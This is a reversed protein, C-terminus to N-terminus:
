RVRRTRGCERASRGSGRLGRRVRPRLLWPRRLVLADDFGVLPGYAGHELRAIGRVAPLFKAEDGGGTETAVASVVLARGPGQMVGDVCVSVFVSITGM